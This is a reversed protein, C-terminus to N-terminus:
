KLLTFKGIIPLQKERGQAVNVLGIIALVLFVFSAISLISAIFLSLRWSIATLIGTLVCYFICYAVEALFLILGQNTHYRVFSSNKAAFIPILVLFGLYAFVALIANKEHGVTSTPPTKAHYKNGFQSSVDESSNDSIDKAPQVQEGCFSCFQEAENIETGCKKCTPM